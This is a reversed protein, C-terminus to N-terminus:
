VTGMVIILPINNLPSSGKDRRVSQTTYKCKNLVHLCSISQAFIDVQYDICVIFDICNNRSLVNDVLDFITASIPKYHHNTHLGILKWPSYIQGLLKPTSTNLNGNTSKVDTTTYRHKGFNGASM